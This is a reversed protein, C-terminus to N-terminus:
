HRLKAFRECKRPTSANIRLEVLPFLITKPHIVSEKRDATEEKSAWIDGMLQLRSPNDGNRLWVEEQEGTKTNIRLMGQWDSIIYAYESHQERAM